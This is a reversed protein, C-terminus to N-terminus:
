LAYYVRTYPETGCGFITKSHTADIIQLELAIRYPSFASFSPLDSFLSVQTLKGDIRM